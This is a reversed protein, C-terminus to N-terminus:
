RCTRTASASSTRPHWRTPTPSPTPSLDAFDGMSQVTTADVQAKDRGGGLLETTNSGVGDYFDIVIKRGYFQYQKNFYEALATVTNKVTEPTDQLTAGALSALTQQFGKENLVRFAVHIETANVGHHTEGGNDGTFTFCPPSYPDGPVQDAQGVLEPLM